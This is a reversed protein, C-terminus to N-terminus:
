KHIVLVKKRVSNGGDGIQLIYMGDALSQTGIAKSQEGENFEGVTTPRGLQDILVISTKQKVPKPLEVTFEKDSPNPYVTLLTPIFKSL